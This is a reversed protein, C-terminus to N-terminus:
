PAPLVCEIDSSTETRVSCADGYGHDTCFSQACSCDVTGPCSVPKPQCTYAWDNECRGGPQLHKGPPCLGADDPTFLAGGITRYAVCIEGVKCLCTVAADKDSGGDVPPSSVDATAGDISAESKGGADYPNTGNNEGLTVAGSCGAALATACAAFALSKKFHTFMTSTVEVELEGSRAAKIM